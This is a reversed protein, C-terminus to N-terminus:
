RWISLGAEARAIRKRMQGLWIHNQGAVGPESTARADRENANRRGSSARGGGIPKTMALPAEPSYTFRNLVKM